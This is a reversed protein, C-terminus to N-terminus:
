AIEHLGLRNQKRNMAALVFERNWVHDLFCAFHQLVNANSARLKGAMACLIDRFCSWPMKQIKRRAAAFRAGTTSASNQNVHVSLVRLNAGGRLFVHREDLVGGFSC